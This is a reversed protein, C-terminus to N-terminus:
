SSHVYHKLLVIAGSSLHINLCQMGVDDGDDDDNSTAVFIQDHCVM